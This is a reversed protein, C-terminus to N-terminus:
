RGDVLKYSLAYMRELEAIQGTVTCNLSMLLPADYDPSFEREQVERETVDYSGCDLCCKMDIGVDIFGSMNVCATCSLVKM